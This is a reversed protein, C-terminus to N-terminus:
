AKGDGRVATRNAQGLQPDAKALFAQEIDDLMINLKSTLATAGDTLETTLIPTAHNNFVYSYGSQADGLFHEMAPLDNMIQQLQQHLGRCTEAYADICAKTNAIDTKSLITNPPM